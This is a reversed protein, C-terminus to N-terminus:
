IFKHTFQTPKRAVELNIVIGGLGEIGDIENINHWKM